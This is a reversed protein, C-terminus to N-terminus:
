TSLAQPKMSQVSVAHEFDASMGMSLELSEPLINLALSVEKHCELLKQYSFIIKARVSSM